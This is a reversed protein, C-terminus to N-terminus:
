KFFKVNWNTGFDMAFNSKAILPVIWWAMLLFALLGTKLLILVSKRFGAQPKLIPMIAIIACAMITTFFHSAITLALLIATSIRYRGEDVDRWMCGIFLVMLSFSLSNSIMGALTSYINVGWMTHPPDFLFPVM